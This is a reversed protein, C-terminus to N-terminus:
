LNIGAKNAFLQSLLIFWLINLYYSLYGKRECNSSSTLKRKRQYKVNRTTKINKTGKKKNIM